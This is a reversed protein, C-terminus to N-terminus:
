ASGVIADVMGRLRAIDRVVLTGHSREILGARTLEGLERTVAERHTSVRSAIDAHTPLPAIVASNGRLDTDAVLRLLEAQIRTSVGATSLEYIRECLLRVLSTLRRMTAAAAKPHQDLIQWFVKDSVSAILSECLTVVHTARPRGDIAALEGFIEGGSLEQFIVVKGARSYMTARVRGGCVFFVESSTERHAVIQQRPAYLRWRCRQSLELLQADSLSALVKVRRLTYASRGHSLDASSLRM